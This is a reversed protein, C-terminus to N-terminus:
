ANHCFRCIGIQWPDEFYRKRFDNKKEDYNLLECLSSERVNGYKERGTGDQCCITVDGDWFVMMGGWMWHCKRSYSIKKDYRSIDPVEFEESKEMSASAMRINLSKVAPTLGMGKITDRFREREHQNKKTMVMQIIIQQRVGGRKKVEDALIEINEFVKQFQDVGKYVEFTEPSMSDLSIVLKRFSHDLLGRVRDENLPGFNSCIEVNNLGRKNLYDLFEELKDHLFPEGYGAFQINTRPVVGDIVKKFTEWEMKGQPRENSNIGTPCFECKQNCHNTLEMDVTRVPVPFICKTLKLEAHLRRWIGLEKITKLLINPPSVRNLNQITHNM